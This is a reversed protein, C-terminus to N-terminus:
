PVHEKHLCSVHPNLTEWFSNRQLCLYHETGASCLVALLRESFCLVRHSESDGLVLYLAYTDPSLEKRTVVEEVVGQVTSMGNIQLLFLDCSTM